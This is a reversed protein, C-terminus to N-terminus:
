AGPAGTSVRKPRDYDEALSALQGHAATTRAGRSGAVPQLGPLVGALATEAVNLLNTAAILDAFAKTLGATPLRPMDPGGADVTSGGQGNRAREATAREENARRIAAVHANWFMRDIQSGHAYRKELNADTEPKMLGKLFGPLLGQLDRAMQQRNGLADAPINSQLALAGGLLGLNRFLGAKKAAALGAAGTLAAAAFGGGEAAAAGGAVAEAAPAATPIFKLRSAVAITTAGAAGVEAVTAAAGGAEAAAGAVKAGGPLFRGLGPIGTVVDGFLKIARGINRLGLAVGSITLATGFALVSDILVSFIRPHDRTFNAFDRLKPLLADLASVLIPLVVEGAQEQLNLWRAQLELEKGTLGSRVLKYTDDINLQKAQAAISRQIAPMLKDIQSFVAGATGPGFVMSVEAARETRARADDGLIQTGYKKTIAPIFKDTFYAVPDTAFKEREVMVDGPNGLFRQVGGQKNLEVKTKDWLGLSLYESVAQKPLGRQTGALRQFAVRLGSGLRGGRLDAMAPELKTLADQSVNFGAVGSTAMFQQLESWPVVGGSSKSLRFGWDAISSFVKPDNAGGRSEIFRLMALDQTHAETRKDDSLGSEIFNLRALIPTAIKAGELQQQSTLKGSERFIGQAETMQRMTQVYSNGAVDMDKVFKLAQANVADGMGYMQFKQFEQQFEKAQHVAGKFSALIGLGAGTMAGSIVLGTKISELERKLAKADGHAKLLHKSLGLLGHSATDILRIRVAVSWAEFM